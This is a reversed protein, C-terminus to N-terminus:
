TSAYRGSSHAIEVPNIAEQLREKAGYDNAARLGCVELMAEWDVLPKDWPHM